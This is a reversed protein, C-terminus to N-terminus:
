IVVKINTKKLKEELLIKLCKLWGENQNVGHYKITLVNKQFVVTIGWENFLTLEFELRYKTIDSTYIDSVIEIIDDIQYNVEGNEQYVENGGLVFYQVGDILDSLHEVLYDEYTLSVTYEDVFLNFYYDYDDVDDTCFHDYLNYLDVKGIDELHRVYDDIENLKFEVMINGDYEFKNINKNM